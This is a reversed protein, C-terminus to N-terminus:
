LIMNQTILCNSAHPRQEPRKKNEERKRGVEAKETKKRRSRERWPLLGQDKLSGEGKLARIGIVGGAETM